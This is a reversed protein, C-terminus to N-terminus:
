KQPITLIEPASDTVLVTHEFHASPSGDRTRATWGDKDTMVEKRGMNVMPEIAIVTGPFLKPGDKPKGYNPVQPEEHMTRGVGHGVFQEVVSYGAREVFKQIRHSINGVRNGSVAMAIGETLAARTHDLLAQMSDSVAGVAFTAANDGIWGQYRVAVDVTLNDGERLVKRMSGSGHVVEDSVSLCIYGSFPPHHPIVYNYCPSEAGYQKFLRRAEQEIDYTAVGPAVLPALDRLISAAVQCAERIYGVEVTSRLPIKGRNRGM